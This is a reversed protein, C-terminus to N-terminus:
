VGAQAKPFEVVEALEGHVPAPAKELREVLAEHEAWLERPLRDGFKEYAAPILSAEEKWVSRDVSLLLFLQHDTLNLGNLDLSEKTPLRGIPSDQAAAKGELREVIWKLVRSNEGYGPWLFKGHM